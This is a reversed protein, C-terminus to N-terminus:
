IRQKKKKDQEVMASIIDWFSVTFFMDTIIRLNITWINYLAVHLSNQFTQVLTLLKQIDQTMTRTKM